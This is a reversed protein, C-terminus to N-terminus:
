LWGARVLVERAVDTVSGSDNDVSFDEVGTADLSAELEAVRTVFKQQLMGPERVRIRQRM